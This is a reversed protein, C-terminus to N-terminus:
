AHDGMGRSAPDECRQALRAMKHDIWRQVDDSNQYITLLQGLVIYVDAMEESVTDHGIARGRLLRTLVIACEQLEEIAVLIQLEPGWLQVTNDLIQVDKPKIQPNM